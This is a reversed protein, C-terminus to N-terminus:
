FEVGNVLTILQDKTQKAAPGTPSILASVPLVLGLVFNTQFTFQSGPGPAM